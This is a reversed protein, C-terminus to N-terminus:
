TGHDELYPELEQALRGWFSVGAGGRGTFGWMGLALM